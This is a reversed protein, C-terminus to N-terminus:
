KKQQAAAAQLSALFANADVKRPVRPKKPSAAEATANAEAVEEDDRLQKNFTPPSTRLTRVHNIFKTLEERSM